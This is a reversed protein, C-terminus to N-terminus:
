NNILQDAIKKWDYRDDMVSKMAVKIENIKNEDGILKCIEETWEDATNARVVASNEEKGFGDMSVDSAIIPVQCAMAEIIKNKKGSGMRLPSVYIKCSKIYSFINDVRGTVIVNKQKKAIELLKKTPNKGVIYLKLMPLKKSIQPFVETLFFLMADENPEYNMVGTFIISNHDIDIIPAANAEQVEVGLNCLVFRDAYEPHLEKELEVDISSVLIIKAFKSLLRTEERIAYKKQLSYYVKGIKGTMTKKRDFLLPMSDHMFLISRNPDVVTMDMSEYQDYIIMDYSEKSLLWDLVRSRSKNIALTYTKQELISKFRRFIGEQRLDEYYINRVSEFCYKREDKIRDEGYYLIDIDCNKLYKLIRNITHVGGSKEEPFPFFPTILLYKM